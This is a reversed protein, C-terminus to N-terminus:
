MHKSQYHMHHHLFQHHYCQEWYVLMAAEVCFHRSQLLQKTLPYEKRKNIFIKSLCSLSSSNDIIDYSYTENCDM